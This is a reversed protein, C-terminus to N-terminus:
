NPKIRLITKYYRVMIHGLVSTKAVNNDWLGFPLWSSTRPAGRSMGLPCRLLWPLLWDWSVDKAVNELGIITEKM